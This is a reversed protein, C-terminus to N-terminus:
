EATEKEQEHNKAPDYPKIPHSLTLIKKSKKLNTDTQYFSRIHSSAIAQPTCLSNNKTTRVL